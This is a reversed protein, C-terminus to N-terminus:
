TKVQNLKLLSATSPGHHLVHDQLFKNDKHVTKVGPLLSPLYNDLTPTYVCGVDPRLYKKTIAKRGFASLPKHLTGLFALLQQSAQWRLEDDEDDEGTPPSTSSNTGDPEIVVVEDSYNEAGEHGKLQRPIGLPTM